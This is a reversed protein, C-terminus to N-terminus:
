TVKQGAPCDAVARLFALNAVTPLTVAVYFNGRRDDNQPGPNHNKNFRYRAGVAGLLRMVAFAPLDFIRATRREDLAEPEDEAITVAVAPNDPEDIWITAATITGGTEAEGDFATLLKAPDPHQRSTRSVVM